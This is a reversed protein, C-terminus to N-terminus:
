KVNSIKDEESSSIKVEDWFSNPLNLKPIIINSKIIGGNKGSKGIFGTIYKKQFALSILNCVQEEPLNIKMEKAIKNRSVPSSNCIKNLSDFLSQLFNDPFTQSIDRYFTPEHVIGGHKGPIIKYDPFYELEFMASVLNLGLNFKKSDNEDFGLEKVLDRKFITNPGFCKSKLIELTKNIFENTFVNM